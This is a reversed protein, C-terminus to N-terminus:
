KFGAMRKGIKSLFGVRISEFKRRFLGSQIREWIKLSALWSVIGTEYFDESSPKGTEYSKISRFFFFFFFFFFQERLIATLRAQHGGEGNGRGTIQDSVV